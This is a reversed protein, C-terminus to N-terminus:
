KEGYEGEFVDKIQKAKVEGIKEVEQLEYVSANALNKISKFRKLLPKSLTIGVGPLASVLYEQQEKLTLPKRDAHPSFTTGTEEQERKAIISFLAATEKSNKTQILPIGYSVIITAMMGRISNPHVNRVSFIDQEGEIVILPREYNRKLEKIQKQHDKMDDKIKKMLVQNTTYKTVLIVILSIFLALAIVALLVPLQLLPAFVINLFDYYAM